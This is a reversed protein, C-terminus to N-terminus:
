DKWIYEYRLIAQREEKFGNRTDLDGGFQFHFHFHFNGFAYRATLAIQYRHKLVKDDKDM